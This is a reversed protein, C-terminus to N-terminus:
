RYPGETFTAREPLSYGIVGWELIDYRGRRLEEVKLVLVIEDPEVQIVWDTSLDKFLFPGKIRAETRRVDGIKYRKM